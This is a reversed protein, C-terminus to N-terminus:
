RIGTDCIIQVESYGNSEVTTSINSCRPLSNGSGASVVYEGPPLSLKFTGDSGSQATAFVKTPSSSYSISISTQYPKDACQPDPPNRMVPCSPGLIVSGSIGSKFPAISGKDAVCIGGTDPRSVTLQCHFGTACVPANRIFGGCHEGEGVVSSNDVIPAPHTDTDVPISQTSTAIGSSTLPQTNTYSYVGYCILLLLIISGILLLVKYQHNKM